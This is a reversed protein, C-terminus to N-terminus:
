YEWNLLQRRLRRFMEGQLPKTLIDAIMHETGLHEVVIEGSEVRDKVFFFRIAIHRTRESNSQGNKALAITSMNDQYLTAPGVSYGQELLFDRAWIVQPLVDSIGILEAETSSKSMLKQKTAKAWVAGHGLTIVAGTQSKYDEHTGFSADVYAFIQLAKDGELVMGMEATCSLYKLVRVLKQQDQETACNVRTTLFIVAAM